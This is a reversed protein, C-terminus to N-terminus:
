SAEKGLLEAVSKMKKSGSAAQRKTFDNDSDLITRAGKQISFDIDRKAKEVGRRGLDMLVADAQIPDMRRGDVSERFRMWRDWDTALEEPADSEAHTHTNEKRKKEKRTREKDAKKDAERASMKRVSDQARKRATRGNHETFNIATLGQASEEIWGVDIMAQCLGRFGVIEDFVEKSYGDLQGDETHEDFLCWASFLGGITRFRDAQLASMIRVVKPDTLLSRRMKIWEISM